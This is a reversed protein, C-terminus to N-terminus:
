FRFYLFPNYSASVIYAICIFLLAYSVVEKAVIMKNSNLSIKKTWPISFLLCAIFVIGYNMLLYISYSDIFTHTFMAKIFIRLKSMDEIAFLAWGMLVLFMAYVHQIVAPIKELRKILFTKEILLILGFWLGWLIFNWSAGHWLGTLFWVILINRIQHKRNGGLPIYVNDRFWGGLTMHWRRWFETISKSIYPFNFNEPFNFGLIKGLGIAMDSYGSFDFYIQFAFALIGIWATLASIKNFNMESINTWVIGINNALLVKKALGKIFRQIGEHITDFTTTRSHLENEVQSYNVIPGAILQPFMSVFVAFDLMNKQAKCKGTYVEIDYSMTQFTYFSIGIPLPLNLLPINAGTIQNVTSIAFDSYKFFGLMLLNIFLGSALFIKSKYTGRYKEIFLGHFYDSVTSFLMLVVYVPEGWAYFFLSAILLIINRMKSPAIFYLLFFIPMFRFLFLVSSFVLFDGDKKNNFFSLADEDM